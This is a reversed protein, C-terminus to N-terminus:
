DHPVHANDDIIEFALASFSNIIKISDKKMLHKM